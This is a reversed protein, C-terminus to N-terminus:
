SFGLHRREMEEWVFASIVHIKSAKVVEKNTPSDQWRTKNDINEMATQNQEELTETKIFHRLPNMFWASAALIKWLAEESKSKWYFFRVETDFSLLSLM